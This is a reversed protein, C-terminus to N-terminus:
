PLCYVFKILFTVNARADDISIQYDKPMVTNLHLWLPISDAGYVQRPYDEFAMIANGFRTPLLLGEKSPFETVLESLLEDHEQQDANPFGDGAERWRRQLEVLRTKKRRYRQLERSGLLKAIIPIPWKYGEIFQFLNQNMLMLTISISWVFLFLYLANGLSFDGKISTIGGYTVSDVIFTKDALKSITSLM